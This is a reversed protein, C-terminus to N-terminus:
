LFDTNLSTLKTPKIKVTIVLFVDSEKPESNPLLLLAGTNVRLETILQDDELLCFFPDEDSSKEGVIQSCETPMRLADFLVKIRNDIDGGSVFNGAEERRLFLIELSCKLCLSNTVLPVFRYNCRSFNDAILDIGTRNLLAAKGALVYGELIRPNMESLEKGQELLAHDTSWLHKLQKHFVKRIEHKERARTNSQSAAHLQGQYLLRFELMQEGKIPESFPDSELILCQSQSGCVVRSGQKRSPASVSEVANPAIATADLAKPCTEKSKAFNLHRTWAGCNVCVFMGLDSSKQTWAHLVFLSKERLRRFRLRRERRRM